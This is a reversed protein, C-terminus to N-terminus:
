EMLGLEALFIVLAAMAPYRAFRHDVNMSGMRTHWPFPDYALDWHHGRFNALNSSHAVPLRAQNATIFMDNNKDYNNLQLVGMAQYYPVESLSTVGAFTFTPIRLEVFASIYDRLFQERESTTMSRVAGAVDYQEIRDRVRDVQVVPVIERLLKGIQGSLPSDPLDTSELRAAIDDAIYSGGIVGAWSIFSKIRPQYEPHEVLFTLADAAGKSYGMLVVDAPAQIQKPAIEESYADRGAGSDMAAVIDDVNAESSRAPHVDAALIRVGFRQELRPWVSQFAMVPLLGTLLSPVFLLTTKKIKPDKAAPLEDLAEERAVGKLYRAALLERGSRRDLFQMPLPVKATRRASEDKEAEALFLDRYRRGLWQQIVPDSLARTSDQSVARRVDHIVARYDARVLAAAIEPYGSDPPEGSTSDADAM